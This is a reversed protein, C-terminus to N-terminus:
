TIRIRAQRKTFIVCAPGSALRGGWDHRFEDLEQYVILGVEALGYKVSFRKCAEQDIERLRRLLPHMLGVRHKDNNKM